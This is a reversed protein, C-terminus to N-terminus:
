WELRCLVVRGTKRSIGITEIGRQYYVGDKLHEHIWEPDESTSPMSKIQDPGLFNPDKSWEAQIAKEFAAVERIPLDFTYYESSDGHFDPATWKARANSATSRWKGGGINGLVEDVQQIASQGTATGINESDKAIWWGFLAYLFGYCLLPLAILLGLVWFLLKLRQSSRKGNGM